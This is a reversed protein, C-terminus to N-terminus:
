NSCKSGNVTLTIISLYMNVSMKNKLYLTEREGGRQGGRGGELLGMLMEQLVPKTVVFM